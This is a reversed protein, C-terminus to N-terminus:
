FYWGATSPGWNKWSGNGTQRSPFSRSVRKVPADPFRRHLRHARSKQLALSQKILEQEITRSGLDLPGSRKRPVCGPGGGTPLGGAAGVRFASLRGVGYQGRPLEGSFRLASFHFHTLAFRGEYFQQCRGLTEADPEEMSAIWDATILLRGLFAARSNSQARIDTDSVSHHTRAIEWIQRLEDDNVARAGHLEDAFYRKLEDLDLKHDGPAKGSRLKGQCEARRKGIDHTLCALELM